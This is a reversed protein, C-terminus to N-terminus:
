CAAETIRLAALLNDFRKDLQTYVQSPYLELLTHPRITKINCIQSRLFQSCFPKRFILRTSLAIVHHSLQPLNASLMINICRVSKGHKHYESTSASNYRSGHQSTTGSVYWNHQVMNRTTFDHQVKLQALLRREVDGGVCRCCSM